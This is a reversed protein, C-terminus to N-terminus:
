GRKPSNKREKLKLETWTKIFTNCGDTNELDGKKEMCQLFLEKVEEPELNGKKLKKLYGKQM